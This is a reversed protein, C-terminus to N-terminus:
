LLAPVPEAHWALRSDWETPNIRFAQRIVEGYYPSGEARRLLSAAVEPVGLSCLYCDEGWHRRLEGRVELPWGLRRYIPLVRPTVELFLEVIGAGVCHRWMEIVLRWFLDGHGRWPADLALIAVHACRRTACSQVEPWIGHCPIGGDPDPLVFQLGGILEGRVQLGFYVSRDLWHRLAGGPMWGEEAAVREFLRTLAEVAEPEELRLVDVEGGADKWLSPVATEKRGPV